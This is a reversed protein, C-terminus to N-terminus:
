FINRRSFNKLSMMSLSECSSVDDPDATVPRLAYTQQVVSNGQLDKLRLSMRYFQVGPLISFALCVVCSHVSLPEIIEFFDVDQVRRYHGVREWDHVSFDAIREAGILSSLVVPENHGISQQLATMRQSAMHALRQHAIAHSLLREQMGLQLMTPLVLLSAMGLFLLALLVVV